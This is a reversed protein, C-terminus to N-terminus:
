KISTTTHTFSLLLNGLLSNDLLLDDLLFDDLPCDDFLFDYLFDTARGLGLVPLATFPHNGRRRFVTMQVFSVFRFLFFLMM